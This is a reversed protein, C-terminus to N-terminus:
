KNQARTPSHVEWLWQSTPLPTCGLSLCLQALTLSVRTFMNQSCSSILAAPIPPNGRPLPRHPQLLLNSGFQAFCSLPSFLRLPTLTLWVPTQSPAEGTVASPSQTFQKGLSQERMWLRLCPNGAWLETLMVCSHASARDTCPVGRERPLLSQSPLSLM